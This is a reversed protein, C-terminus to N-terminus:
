WAFGGLHDACSMKSFEEQSCGEVRLHLIPLAVLCARADEQQKMFMLTPLYSKNLSGLM